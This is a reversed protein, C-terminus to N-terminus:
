AVEKEAVDSVEYPIDDVELLGAGKAKNYVEILYNWQRVHALVCLGRGELTLVTPSRRLSQIVAPQKTRLDSIPRTPLVAHLM